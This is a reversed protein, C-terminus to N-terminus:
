EKSIDENRPIVHMAQGDFEVLTTTLLLPNSIEPTIIKLKKVLRKEAM